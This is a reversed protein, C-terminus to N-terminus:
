LLPRRDTWPRAQEYAAAAILVAADQAHRGAIQLGVPLGADTWGAPISIAPYGAHSIAETYRQNQLPPFSVAQGDVTTPGGEPGPHPFAVMPTTPWILLDHDVFVEAFAQHLAGREEFMVRAYQVATMTQGHTLITAHDGDLEELDAGGTELDAFLMANQPGWYDMFYQVVDPLSLKVEDVSAGLETEFVRAAHAVVRRVEPELPPAGLDPSYAVRLGAVTPHELAALFDVGHEQIAFMEFPDPGAISNLMFANDRVTRTIPGVVEVQELPSGDGRYPIRGRSAKLGVAGCLSAPVRISGGGDSGTALPGMGAVVSAAAGGSSGGVTRTPDWPNNTTGHVESVTVSNEGFPPTASKALLIAGAAKLRAWIVGDEDPINNAFSPHGFTTRVGATPTLDKVTVPLGHLPGLESHDRSTFDQEAERAQALASEGLLTVFANVTPNVREIRTLLAEVLEVPSLTRRRFAAALDVAPTFCLDDVAQGSRAPTTVFAGRVLPQQYSM